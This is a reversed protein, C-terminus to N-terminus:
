IECLGSNFALRNLRCAALRDADAQSILSVADASFTVYDCTREATATYKPLLEDPFPETSSEGAENLYVFNEEHDECKGELREDTFDKTHLRISKVGMDGSWILMYSFFRDIGTLTEGEVTCEFPAINQSSVTRTQGIMKLIDQTDIGPVLSGQGAKIVKWLDRLYKGKIGKTFGALHVEGSIEELFLRTFHFRKQALQELNYRRTELLCTIPCGNSTREKLFCQYTRNGGDADESTCYTHQEGGEPYLNFWAVPRWGTWVSEWVLSGGTIDLVWTHENASGGSPVSVTLYDGHAGMCIQDKRYSINEKSFIMPEDITILSSDNLSQLAANLNTLGQNSWFWTLGNKRIISRPSVCGVGIESQQFGPTTQWVSRDLINAQLVTLSNAGFIVLEGKSTPTTMATVDEPMLFARAESLYQTETFSLPNGFDSAVVESGRSVWLRSGAFSMHTGIPTEDKGERFVPGELDFNTTTNPDLHRAVSGDWFAARTRGDQWVILRRPADLDELIGDVYRQTQTCKAHYIYRADEAFQLTGVRFIEETFPFRCAYIRGDVAAWAWRVGDREFDGSGQLNGTPWTIVTKDGPRTRVLNNKRVVNYARYYTDPVEFTASNMGRMWNTEEINM